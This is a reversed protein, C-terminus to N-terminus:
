RSAKDAEIGQFVLELFEETDNELPKQSLRPFSVRHEIFGQSSDWLFLFVRTEDKLGIRGSDISRQIAERWSQYVPRRVTGLSEYMVGEEMEFSALGGFLRFMDPRELCFSIYAAILSKLRFLPDEPHASKIAEFKASLEMFVQAALQALLDEKNRFFRYITTPSYDILSAIKRMSLRESGQEALIRTAAALVKKKLAENEM